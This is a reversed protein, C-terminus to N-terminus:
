AMEMPRFGMLYLFFQTADCNTLSVTVQLPTTSLCSNANTSDFGYYIGNDRLLATNSLLNGGTAADYWKVTGNSTVNNIFKSYYASRVWL